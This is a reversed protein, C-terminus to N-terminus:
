PLSCNTLEDSNNTNQNVLILLGCATIGTAKGFNLGMTWPSRHPENENELWEVLPPHNPANRGYVYAYVTGTDIRKLSNKM